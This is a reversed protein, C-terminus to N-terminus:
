ESYIGAAYVYEESVKVEHDTLLSGCFIDQLFNDFEEYKQKDQRTAVLLLDPNTNVLELLAQGNIKELNM